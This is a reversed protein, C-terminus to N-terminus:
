SRSSETRPLPWTTPILPLKADQAYAPESPRHPQSAPDLECLTSLGQPSAGLLLSRGQVSVVFLAHTATLRREALVDIPGTHQPRQARRWLLLLVSMGLMVLAARGLLGLLTMSDVGSANCLQALMEQHSALPGDPTM